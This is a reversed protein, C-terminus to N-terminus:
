TTKDALTQKVGLWTQVIIDSVHM